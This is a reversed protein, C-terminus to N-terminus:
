IQEIILYNMQYLGDQMGSTSSWDIGRHMDPVNVRSLEAGLEVSAKEVFELVGDKVRVIM